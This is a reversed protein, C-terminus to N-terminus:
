LGRAALAKKLEAISMKEVAERLPAVERHL